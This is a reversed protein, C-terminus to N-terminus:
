GLFLHTVAAKICTNYRIYKDPKSATVNAHVNYLAYRNTGAMVNWICTNQRTSQATDPTNRKYFAILFTNQNGTIYVFLVSDDVKNEDGRCILLFPFYRRDIIIIYHVFPLNAHGVFLTKYFM